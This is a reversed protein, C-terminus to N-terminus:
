YIAKAYRDIEELLGENKINDYDFTNITELTRINNIDDRLKRIDKVGKVVFDIDSGMRNSGKAYSGFLYLHTAKNKICINKVNEIIDEISM